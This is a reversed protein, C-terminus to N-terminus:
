QSNLTQRTRTSQTVEQLDSHLIQLCAITAREGFLCFVQWIIYVFDDFIVQFTTM